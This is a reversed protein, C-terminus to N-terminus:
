SNMEKKMERKTYRRYCYVIAVNLIIIALVILALMGPQIGDPM